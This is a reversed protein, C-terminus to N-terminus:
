SSALPKLLNVELQGDKSVSTQVSQCGRVETVSRWSVALELARWWRCDAMNDRITWWVQRKLRQLGPM